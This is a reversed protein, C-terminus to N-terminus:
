SELPIRNLRDMLVPLDTISTIIFNAGKRVLQEESSIGTPLGVAVAKIERAVLVDNISDGVVLTKNVGVGLANVAAMCHEPNPKVQGVDDRSITANFFETLKFRTLIRETSKKGNITCLAMKFGMKKLAKLAEIAGPLLSTKQAAELEHKEALSWVETRIKKATEAPKGSNALYLETKKLLEVISEDIDLLSSPIGAKILHARAESRLTKYDLNFTVITGDLDFIIAEFALHNM